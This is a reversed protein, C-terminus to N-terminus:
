AAQEEPEAGGRQLPQHVRKHNDRWGERRLLIFIRWFGYRIRVQAIEQMRKRIVSSDRAKSRYYWGSRHFLVVKCARIVSIRYDKQLELALRKVQAPRLAKKAARLTLMQKDLSLDAVLQKLQRHEEELQRLGSCNM